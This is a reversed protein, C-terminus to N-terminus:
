AYDPLVPEAFCRCNYICGAHARVDVGGKSTGAVPPESWKHYTGNLKQHLKRVDVDGSSRWMYGESGVFQSRAQVLNSAARATETRAILMARSATIDGLAGIRHALAGAREATAIRAETVMEHVQKAAKLPLSTILAVQSEQLQRFLEGIPAQAIEERLNRSLSRALTNWMAEDRRSVDALMRAASVRAWPKIAEAYLELARVLTEESEGEGLMSVLRSIERAVGRLDRGYQLEARRV